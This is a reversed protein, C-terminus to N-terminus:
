LINKQVKQRNCVPFIACLFRVFSWFCYFINSGKFKNQEMTDQNTYVTNCVKMSQLFGKQIWFHGYLRAKFYSIFSFSIVYQGFKKMHQCTSLLTMSIICPSSSNIQVSPHESRDDFGPRAKAIKTSHYLYFKAESVRCCTCIKLSKKQM